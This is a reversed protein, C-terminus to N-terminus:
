IRTLQMSQLTQTFYVYRQHMSLALSIITIVAITEGFLSFISLYRTLMLILYANVNPM